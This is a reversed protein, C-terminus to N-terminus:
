KQDRKRPRGPGRRTEAKPAATATEIPEAHGVRIAEEALQEPMDIVDGRFQYGFAGYRSTLMKVTM